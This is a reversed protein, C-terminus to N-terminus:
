LGGSTTARERRDVPDLPAPSHRPERWDMSLDGPEPRGAGDPERHGCEPCAWGGPDKVPRLDGHGHCEDTTCPRAYSMAEGCAPCPREGIKVGLKAAVLDLAEDEPVPIPRRVPLEILKLASAPAPRGTLRELTQLFGPREATTDAM